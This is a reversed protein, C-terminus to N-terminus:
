DRMQLMKEIAASLGNEDNTLSIWKAAQKLEPVANGMAVGWGAASVMEMDNYNDGITMFRELPIGSHKSVFGLTEGKNIGKRMVEISREDGSSLEVNPYVDLESMRKRVENKDYFTISFKLAGDNWVILPEANVVPLYWVERFGDLMAQGTGDEWVAGAADTCGEAGFSVYNVAVYTRIKALIALATKQDISKNFLLERAPLAYVQAGNDTVIYPFSEFGLENLLSILADSLHTLSRGTCPVLKIGADRAKRLSGRNAASIEKKSNLTTGDLDFALL